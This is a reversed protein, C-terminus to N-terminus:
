YMWLVFLIVITPISLDNMYENEILLNILVDIVICCIYVHLIRQNLFGEINFTLYFSYWYILSQDAFHLPVLLKLLSEVVM